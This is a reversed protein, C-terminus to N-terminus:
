SEPIQSSVEDKARSITVIRDEMPQCMVDLVRTGFEPFEDERIIKM